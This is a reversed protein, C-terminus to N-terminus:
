DATHPTPRTHGDAIIIRLILNDHDAEAHAAYGVPNLREVSVDKRDIGKVNVFGSGQCFIEKLLQLQTLHSYKVLVIIVAFLTQFTHLTIFFFLTQFYHSRNRSLDRIPVEARM